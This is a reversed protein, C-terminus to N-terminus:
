RRRTGEGAREVHGARVRTRGSSRTSCARPGRRHGPVRFGTELWEPHYDQANAATMLSGTMTIDTFLAVTTVGADKLKGIMVPAQEQSLASNGLVDDTGPDYPLEVALKPAQYKALSSKWLDEDIGTQGNQYM